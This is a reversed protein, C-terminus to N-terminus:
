ICYGSTGCLSRSGGVSPIFSSVIVVLVVYVVLVGL